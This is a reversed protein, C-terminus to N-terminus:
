REGIGEPGQSLSENAQFFGMELQRAEIVKDKPLLNGEHVDDIFEM